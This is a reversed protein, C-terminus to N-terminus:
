FGAYRFLSPALPRLSRICVLPPGTPLQPSSPVTVVRRPSWLMRPVAPVEAEEKNLLKQGRESLNDQNKKKLPLKYFILGEAGDAELYSECNREGFSTKIFLFSNGQCHLM